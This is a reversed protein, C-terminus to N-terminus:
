KWHLNLSDDNNITVHTGFKKGERNLVASLWAVDTSSASNLKFHKIQLPVMRLRVLDSTAPDLAVFYMVALDDRYSEYGGIGEYDNIFDGCGYLILKNKYVEIGKAHHSSHGHVFDVGGDDILKHAFERQQSPVDYGWNGGWHISLMVIDGRRKVAQINRAIRKVSQDSFDGLYNVGPKDAKAAWTWPIGSTESGISCVIVRGNKGVELIAPSEAQSLTNGAGTTQIHAKKLTDLTETLGTYGWDLVHNNALVCCDIEAVTLCPINAPNMKYNIGKGKWYDDSTTVSTELNIIRADPNVRALEDLADGWIYSYEVPKPILGNVEKALEVYGRASKVYPEYIRPDSPNPMIQDIGRGTMVDGCVFLSVAGATDDHKSTKKHNQNNLDQQGSISDPQQTSIKLAYSHVSPFGYVERKTDGNLVKYPGMLVALLKGAHNFFERRNMKIVKGSTQV